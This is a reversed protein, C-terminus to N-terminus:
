KAPNYIMSINGECFSVAGEREPLAPPPDEIAMIPPPLQAVAIALITTPCVWWM